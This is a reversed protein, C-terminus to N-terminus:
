QNLPAERPEVLANRRAPAKEGALFLHNSHFNILPCRLTPSAFQVQLEGWFVASVDELVWNYLLCANLAELFCGAFQVQHNVGQVKPRVMDADEHADAFVV